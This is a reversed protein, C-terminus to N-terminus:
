RSPRCGYGDWPDGMFLLVLFLAVMFVWPHVAIQRLRTGLVLM